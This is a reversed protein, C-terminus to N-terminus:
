AARGTLLLGRASALETGPAAFAIDARQGFDAVFYRWADGDGLALADFGAATEEVDTSLVATTGDPLVAAAPVDTNRYVVGRRELEDALTPYAPGGVFLPHWCSFLDTTFGPAPTDTETRIAGGLRPNREYVGVDRGARALTAAAVLANIGSGIVVVDHEAM